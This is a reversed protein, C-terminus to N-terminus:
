LFKSKVGKDFRYTLNNGGKIYGNVSTVIGTQHQGFAKGVRDFFHQDEGWLSTNFDGVKDVCSARHVRCNTNVVWKPHPPVIIKTEIGNPRPIFHALGWYNAVMGVEPHRKFAQCATALHNPLWFDDSDCYAIFEGSAIKLGVNRVSGPEGIHPVAKLIINHSPNEECLRYLVCNTGDTSGDDIVIIEIDSAPICDQEMISSVARGIFAQRNYVPIIVSYRV